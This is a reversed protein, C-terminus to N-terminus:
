EPRSPPGGEAPASEILKELVDKGQSDKFETVKLAKETKGERTLRSVVQLVVRYKEGRKLTFTRTREVKPKKRTYLGFWREYGPTVRDFVFRGEADTKASAELNTSPRLEDGDLHVSQDVLPEGEEDVLAGEITVAPVLVFDVRRPKGPLIISEPDRGRLDEPMEDAMALGGQRYLNKEAYGPKRASITAFQFGAGWKGTKDNKIMMGSGFRLLYRGDKDTLVPLSTMLTGMGRAARVEAGEVPRGEDDTVVGEVAWPWRKQAEEEHIEIARLGLVLENAPVVGVEITIPEPLEYDFYGYAWSKTSVNVRYSGPALHEIRYKGDDGPFLYPNLSNYEVDLGDPRTLHIGPRPYDIPKRTEADIVTFSVPPGDQVSITVPTVTLSGDVPVPESVAMGLMKEKRAGVFATVLYVGEELRGTLFRDKGNRTEGRQGANSGTVRKWLTGDRPDQMTRSRTEPESELRKWITVLSQEEIPKGDIGLIRVDIGYKALEARSHGNVQRALRKMETGFVYGGHRFDRPTPGVKDRTLWFGTIEGEEVSLRVLMVAKAWRGRVEVFSHGHLERMEASIIGEFPGGRRPRTFEYWVRNLDRATSESRLSSHLLMAADEFRKKAALEVYQRALVIKAEKAAGNDASAEESASGSSAAAVLVAGLCVTAALGALVSRSAGHPATGGDAPRVIRRVRALLSGGTAAVAGAAPRRAIEAVAVLSRAYVERRECIRIALDDACFERECRIRHSLWWVAPHYFLLTEIVTQLLNVLYDHRRVHALEHALVAELEHPALGTLISTPLVVAPKIWGIVMPAAAEFTQRVVVVRRIGLRRAVSRAITVVEDTVAVGGRRLRQALGWGVVHWMSLLVVGAFWAWFVWQLALQGVPLATPSTPGGTVREQQESVQMEIAPEMAITSQAAPMGAEAVHDRRETIELPAQGAIGAPAGIALLNVVPLAGVAALGLCAIVYRLNARPSGPGPSRIGTADRTRSHVEDRLFHLVVALVGAILMGQWLSQVLALAVQHTVPPSLWEFVQHTM